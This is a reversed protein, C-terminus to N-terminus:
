RNIDFTAKGSWYLGTQANPAADGGTVVWVKTGRQASIARWAAADPTWTAHSGLLGTVPDRPSVLGPTTDISLPVPSIYAPSYVGDGNVDYVRIVFRRLLDGPAPYTKTDTKFQVGQPIDWEFSPIQGANKAASWATAKAGAITLIPGRPSMGNAAFIAGYRSLTDVDAVNEINPTIDDLGAWLDNVTKIQKDKILGFVAKFGTLVTGTRDTYTLVPTDVNVGNVVTTTKGGLDFLLRMIAIEDTEGQDAGHVAIPFSSFRDDASVDASNLKSALGKPATNDKMQAMVSYYDAFGESFALKQMLPNSPKEYFSRLDAGLVHTLYNNPLTDLPFFGAGQAVTHGFEHDITDWDDFDGKVIHSARGITWSTPVRLAPAFITTSGGPVFGPLTAQFRAGTLAADFTWFALEDDTMERASDGITFDVKVKPNAVTPTSNGFTVKHTSLYRVSIQQSEPDDPKSQTWVKIYLDKPERNFTIKYSGNNGTFTEGVLQDLPGRLAGRNDIAQVLAGRVPKLASADYTINGEVTFTKAAAILAAAALPGAAPLRYGPVAQFQNAAGLLTLTVSEDQEPDDHDYVPNITVTAQAQGAALFVYGQGSSADLYGGGPGFSVTYDGNVVASGGLKFYVPIRGVSTSRAVEFVIPDQQNAPRQETGKAKTATVTVNPQRGTRVTWLFSQTTGGLNDYASVYVNYPTASADGPAIVGSIVGTERNISLGAPLGSASFMLPRGDPDSAALALLAYDGEVNLQDAPKALTPAIPTDSITWRFSQAAVNGGADYVYVTVAYLGGATEADTYAVTGSIVGSNVDITLGAPLGSAGFSLAAADPASAVIPMSVTDGEANARDGPNTLSPSAAITGSATAPNGGEDRITVSIAYVGSAAYTVTGTVTFQAALAPDAAVTGATTTGDGWAITAAYDAAAGAPDADTFTAVTATFPTGATAMQTLGAARLPADAVAADLGVVVGIGANTITVGGAFSGQEAYTHGGRVEFGGTPAAIVTGPTTSGDGWDITAGDGSAGPAADSFRAVVGSFAAGETAAIASNVGALTPPRTGGSGGSGGNGGPWGPDGPWAPDGPPTGLPPGGVQGPDGPGVPANPDDPGGPAGPAGPGGPWAPWAPPAGPGGNVLLRVTAVNGATGDANVAQYRFSDPGAYGPVATYIFSGDANLTLRGHRVDRALTARLPRDDIDTDNGLVGPTAVRLARGGAVQYSNGIAVPPADAVAAPAVAVVTNGAADRITVTVSPTGEQDYTHAGAVTFTTGALSITGPTTTGDGWDITATYTGPPQAGAPDTFTAVGGQFALRETSAVSLSTATLPPTSTVNLFVTAPSSSLLGDSATYQFSDYGVYGAAPAYVFSGNPNFRLNGRTPSAALTATLPDADADTDNALVGPAVVTLTNGQRVSYSDGNAIPASDMVSVYVTAPSSTLIGDSATYTFSDSGSFRAAPVYVFSGDANLTVAGNTPPTAIALTFPDGDADTVPARLGPAAVRLTQDHTVIYGPGYSITPASDTTNLYVTAINSTNTGNSATYTFTDSGVFRAAPTYTFSGDANLALAGRTVNSVLTATLTGGAPNSDNALVGAAAVNLVRDHVVMYSDSNATPPTAGMVYAAHVAPSLRPSALANSGAKKGPHGGKLKPAM